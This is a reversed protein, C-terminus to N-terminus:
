SQHSTRPAPESDALQEALSGNAIIALDEVGLNRGSDTHPGIRVPEGTGREVISLPGGDEDQLYTNGWQMLALVVPMLDAGKPTLVYEHRTRSGPERYPRKEFLELGTLQKLRSAVNAETCRTRRVFDEFRTTGYLAERLIVMSSRTVLTEMTMAISCNQVTWRSRDELGGEFVIPM